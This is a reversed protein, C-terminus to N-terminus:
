EKPGAPTNSDNKGSDRADGTPVKGDDEELPLM